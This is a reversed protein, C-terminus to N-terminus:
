TLVEPHLKIAVMVITFIFQLMLSIAVWYLILQFPENMLLVNIINKNLEPQLPVLIFTSKKASLISHFALAVSVNAM